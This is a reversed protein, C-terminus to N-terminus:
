LFAFGLVRRIAYYSYFSERAKCLQLFLSREQVRSESALM